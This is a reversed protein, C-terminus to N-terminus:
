NGFVRVGDGGVAASSEVDAYVPIDTDLWERWCGQLLLIRSTSMTSM